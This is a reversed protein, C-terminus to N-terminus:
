NQLIKESPDLYPLSKNSKIVFMVQVHCTLTSPIRRTPTSTLRIITRFENALLTQPDFCYLSFDLSSTVIYNFLSSWHEISRSPWNIESLNYAESSLSKETRSRNGYNALQNEDFEICQTLMVQYRSNRVKASRSTYYLKTLIWVALICCEM